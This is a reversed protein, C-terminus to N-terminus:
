EDPDPTTDGLEFEWGVAQLLVAGFRDTGWFAEGRGWYFFYATRGGDIQKKSNAGEKTYLIILDNSKVEIDPFWYAAKRGSTAQRGNVSVGSRLVLYDGIDVDALARIVVRENALTGADAISKIKLKM